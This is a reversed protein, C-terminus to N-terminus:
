IWFECHYYEGDAYVVRSRIKYVLLTTDKGDQFLVSIFDNKNFNDLLACSVKLTGDDLLTYPNKTLDLDPKFMVDKQYVTGINTTGGETDEVVTEVEISFYSVNTTDLDLNDLAKATRSIDSVVLRDAVMTAKDLDDFVGMLVEVDTCDGNTDYGLAWVEYSVETDEPFDEIDEVLCDMLDDNEFLDKITM